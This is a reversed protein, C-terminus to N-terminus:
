TPPLKNCCSYSVLIFCIDMCHSYVMGMAAKNTVALYGDVPLSYVFSPSEM